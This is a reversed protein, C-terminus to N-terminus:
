VGCHACYSTRKGALLSEIQNSLMPLFMPALPHRFYVAGIDTETMLRGGSFEIEYSAAGGILSMNVQFVKGYDETNLRFFPIRREKLRLILFDCALDSKNTVVLLM